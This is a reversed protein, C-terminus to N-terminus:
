QFGAVLGELLLEAGGVKSDHRYLKTESFTINSGSCIQGWKLKQLFDLKYRDM